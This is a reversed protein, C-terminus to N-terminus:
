QTFSQQENEQNQNQSLGTKLLPYDDALLGDRRCIQLFVEMEVSLDLKDSEFLNLYQRAMASDVDKLCSLTKQATDESTIGTNEISIYKSLISKLTPLYYRFFSGVDSVKQPQVKLTQLIKELTTCISDCTSRINENKVKLSLLRIDTLQTRGSHIIASANEANQQAPTKKPKHLAFYVVVAVLVILAFVAVCGLILFLKAFSPIFKRLIFFVAVFGLITLLGVGGSSQKM